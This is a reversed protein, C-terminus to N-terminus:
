YQQQQLVLLHLMLFVTLEVGYLVYQVEDVLKDQVMLLLLVEEVVAMCHEQEQVLRAVLVEVVLNFLV